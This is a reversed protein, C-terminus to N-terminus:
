QQPLMKLNLGGPYWYSTYQGYGYVSVGVGDSATVTHDGSGSNSLQARVVSFGTSGIPAFGGVNAGDLSVTAGTPAVINVFNTTYNTPAHFRYDTRYQAPTVAQAMAPDGSGGGASQGEMYQMVYVPHSATIMFSAANNGIEVWGGAQAISGPAGSQAPDYTLTTNDQTSVIRVMEVKPNASNPLRPATVVYQKALTQIPFISEELHDCATQNYPVDTCQHGGIVQVPKTSSILIGTPDNPDNTATGGNSVLEVVDGANLTVTGNGNAAIGSVGTKFSGTQPGRTFTVSTGDQGATIAVFGSFGAWQHRAIGRYGTGWANTPLLLSADNTYSFAGGATYELPSFQYVTVPETSRLRYAGGSVNISAPFPLVQFSTGPGKLASVWPLNIKAVSNGPITQTAVTTAGRTITVTAATSATNSVAVAFHFSTSTTPNATVTPFYDCGVYSTGLKTPACDGKCRGTTADCTMGELPDCDDTAYGSGDQKCYKGVNGTCSGTDPVCAVCGLLTACVQGSVTCDTVASYDGHGDCTKATNGDCVIDGAACPVGCHGNACGDSACDGYTNCTSGNGCKPCTSGGCDIDSEDGDKIGDTCTAGCVHSACVKSKCDSNVNCVAKDSCPPCSGGCDVDTESGNRTGDTCQASSCIGQDCIGSTCDAGTKCAVCQQAARAAATSAPKPATRSATAVPPPPAATRAAPMRRGGGGSGRGNAVNTGSSSCGSVLFLSLATAVLLWTNKM